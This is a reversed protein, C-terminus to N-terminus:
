PQSGSLQPFDENERLPEFAADRSLSAADDYGSEVAKQLLAMARASCYQKMSVGEQPSLEDGKVGTVLPICQALLSASRYLMRPDDPVLDALREVITAAEGPDGLAVLTTALKEYHRRLQYAYAMTQPSAELAANQLRVAEYLQTRAAGLQNRRILLDAVADLAAAFRSAYEPRQPFREYLAERIQAARTLADEAEFRSDQADRLLSLEQLCTALGDQHVAEDPFRVVLREYRDRAATLMADAEELTQVERLLRALNAQCQGAASQFRSVEPFDIALQDLGASAARYTLIATDREGLAEQIAALNNRTSHLALRMEPRQGSSPPLADLLRVARQLADQAESLQGVTRLAIGLNTYAIAREGPIESSAEPSPAEAMESSLLEVASRHHKLASASDGREHDLVGLNGHTRALQRTFDAQQPHKRVLPELVALAAEYQRQADTGRGLRQYLNGLNLQAAALERGHTPDAPEEEALASSLEVAKGYSAESKQIDGLMQYIDAVQRYAQATQRRVEPDQANEKLLGQCFGLATELLDRRLRESQPLPALREVGVSTLLEDISRQALQLNHEALETKAAERSLSDRLRANYFAGGGILSAIALVSVAILAAAAPRRRAWKGARGWISVPRAEIPQGAIYRRLDAALREATAYRRAPNKELCKLCITELDRPLRPQLRRPAVPENSLVQLVTELPEQGRFPPRGTLMEYLIAGLAYVDCAPGISRTDGGAQEPAMYSPTGLIDGTKTHAADSEMQKALGFDTIKATGQSDILVNAPKLDRHIVGCQHAAHVADALSAIMRAAEVPPQPMGRLREDLSGGEVYEMALYPQGDAEGVAHIQVIHSHKLRAVAEAETRFRAQAERPAHAGGLLMKLAVVRNLSEQRARYVVGMGGRGIVGEIKFGPIRPLPPEDGDPDFISQGTPSGQPADHLSAAPAAAPETNPKADAGTMSEATSASESHSLADGSTDRHPAAVTDESQRSAHRHGLRQITDRHLEPSLTEETSDSPPPPAVGLDHEDPEPTRTRPGHKNM